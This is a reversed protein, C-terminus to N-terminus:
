PWFRTLEALIYFTFIMSINVAFIVIVITISLNGLSLTYSLSKIIILELLIKTIKFINNIKLVNNIIFTRM